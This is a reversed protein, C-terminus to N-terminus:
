CHWHADSSAAAAVDNQHFSHMDHKVPEGLLFRLWPGNKIAGDIISPIEENWRAFEDFM